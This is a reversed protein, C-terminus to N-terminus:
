RNIILKYSQSSNKGELVLIYEGAALSSVDIRLNGETLPTAAFSVPHEVGIVGYIKVLVGGSGRELPPININVEGTSPNPFLVENEKEEPNTVGLVPFHYILLYGGVSSAIFKGDFDNSVDLSFYSTGPLEMLKKGTLVDWIILNNVQLGSASVLYKDDPTFKINTRATGPFNLRSIEQMTNIDYIRVGYKDDQFRYAVMQCNNSVVFYTFDSLVQVNYLCGISDMTNFDYVNVKTQYKTDYVGKPGEKGWDIYLLKRSRSYESVLIKSNNCLIEAQQINAYFDTSDISMHDYNATYLQKSKIIKGTLTDWILIKHDITGSIVYRGDKSLNARTTLISDAPEFKPEDVGTALNISAIRNRNMGYVHSDDLSFFPYRVYSPIRAKVLNGTYTEYVMSDQQAPWAMIWRSNHSFTVTEIYDSPISKYWFDNLQAFAAQWMAAAIAILLFYKFKM